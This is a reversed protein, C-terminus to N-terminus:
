PKGGYSALAEREQQKDLDPYIEEGLKWALKEAPILVSPNGTMSALWPLHPNHTKDHFLHATVHGLEHALTTEAANKAPWSGSLMQEDAVPRLTVRWETADSNTPRSGSSGQTIEVPDDSIVITIVAFTKEM